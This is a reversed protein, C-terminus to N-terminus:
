PPLPPPSGVGASEQTRGPSLPFLLPTPSYQVGFPPSHEANGKAGRQRALAPCSWHNQVRMPQSAIVSQPSSAPHTITAPCPEAQTGHRHSVPIPQGPPAPPEPPAPPAPPAPPPGYGVSQGSLSPFGAVRNDQWDENWFYLRSREASVWKGGRTTDELLAANRPEPSCWPPDIDSRVRSV